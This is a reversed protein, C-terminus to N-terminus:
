SLVYFMSSLFAFLEFKTSVEVFLLLCFNAPPYVIDKLPCEKIEPNCKTAMVATRLKTVDM